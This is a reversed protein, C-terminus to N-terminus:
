EPQGNAEFIFRWNGSEVTFAVLKWGDSFRDELLASVSANVNDPDQPFMSELDGGNYSGEVKYRLAM